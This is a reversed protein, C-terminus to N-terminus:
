RIKEKEIEFEVTFASEMILEGIFDMMCKLNTFEETVWGSKGDTVRYSITYKNLVRSM